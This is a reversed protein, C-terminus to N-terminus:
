SYTLNDLSQMEDYAWILRRQEPHLPNVSRLSQYALWYFPQKNQYRWDNSILDQGEDILVADFLPKIAKNELLEVCAEALAENPQKSSTFPVATPMRGAAKCVTSYFGPQQKSGWAHLIKLNSSEPNYGYNDQSFHRMWKDVQSTIIGYLSRSFFVLTIQWQPYKISMLVAKQCLLVTKGSGAIGRIRQMGPPIQRAIKEQELDLQSTRSRM